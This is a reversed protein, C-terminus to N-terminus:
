LLALCREPRIHVFVIEGSTLDAGPEIQARLEQHDVSLRCDVTNGLFVSDRVTAKLVNVVSGPHERTVQVDEPRVVIAVSSGVDVSSAVSASLALGDAVKVVALSADDRNRSALHGELLNVQGMFDAVTRNAPREYVDRPSAYQLLRGHDFVAIRDSLALAESQDHTVYVFTIGLARQLDKLETRMRERLKADLNSLPEDLLLIKPEVVVSRALAVRQQQGGSLQNPYRKEMGTLGVRDLVRAVRSRIEQDSLKLLRLGFAVNEFLTMHPWVAYSQFVMGMQRKEPPLMTRSTSYLQDDVLIEGEDPRMFGAIMRLTTTKGCGSPGLLTVFHKDSISLSVDNVAKVDGFRKTISNLTISAM